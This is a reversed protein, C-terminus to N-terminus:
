SSGDISDDIRGGVAWREGHFVAVGHFKRPKLMPAEAVWAGAEVDLSYCSRVPLDAGDSGGVAYLREQRLYLAVRREVPLSLVGHGAGFAVIADRANTKAVSHTKPATPPGVAERQRKGAKKKPPM